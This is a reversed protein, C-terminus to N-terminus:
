DVLLSREEPIATTAARRAGYRLPRQPTIEQTHKRAEHAGDIEEGRLGLPIAADNDNESAALPARLDDDCGAEIWANCEEGGANRGHAIV